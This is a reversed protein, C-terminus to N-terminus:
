VFLRRLHNTQMAQKQSPHLVGRQGSEDSTIAVPMAVEDEIDMFDFWDSPSAGDGVPADELTQSAVELKAAISRLYVQLRSQQDSVGM